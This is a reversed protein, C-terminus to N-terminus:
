GAKGVSRVPRRRRPDLRAGLLTRGRVDLGIAVRDGYEAVVRDCWQPNELAATVSTSGLNAGTALAATLLHTTASAAPYSWM